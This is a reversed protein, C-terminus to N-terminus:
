KLLKNRNMPNGQIFQLLHVSLLTIESHHKRSCLFLTRKYFPNVSPDLGHESLSSKSILKLKVNVLQTFVLCCCFYFDRHFAYKLVPYCFILRNRRLEHRFIAFTVSFDKWLCKFWGMVCVSDLPKRYASMHFLMFDLFCGDRVIERFKCANKFHYQIRRFTLYRTVKLIETKLNM